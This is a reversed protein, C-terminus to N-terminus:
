GHGPLWLNIIPGGWLVAVVAGVGLAPAFPMKTKRGTGRVLMLGIGGLAGCVFAVLFGVYVHLLGLWGLAAGITGALRVDGLGLGSPRIWWVAFLVAFAAAAGIAADGIARWTGGSASAGVLAAVMAASLPYLMRRPVLGVRLDVVSLAVLTAFLVCYAALQPRHGFHAAAGAFLGGTILSSIAVAWPPLPGPETPRDAAILEPGSTAPVGAVPGWPASPIGPRDAAEVIGGAPGPAVVASAAAVGGAVVALVAGVVLGGAACGMVLPFDV